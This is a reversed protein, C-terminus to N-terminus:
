APAGHLADQLVMVATRFPVMEAESLIGHRFAHFAPKLAQLYTAWVPEKDMNRAKNQTEHLLQIVTDVLSKFELALPNVPGVELVSGFAAEVRRCRELHERVEVLERDNPDTCIAIHYLKLVQLDRHYLDILRLARAKRSVWDDPALIEAAEIRSHLDLLEDLTQASLRASMLGEHM